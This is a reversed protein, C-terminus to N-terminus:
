QLKLSFSLFYLLCTSAKPNLNPSGLEFRPVEVLIKCLLIKTLDRWKTFWFPPDVMVVVKASWSTLLQEKVILYMPYYFADLFVL